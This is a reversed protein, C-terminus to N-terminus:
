NEVEKAVDNLFDLVEHWCKTNHCVFTKLEGETFQELAVLKCDKLIEALFYSHYFPRFPLNPFYFDFEGRLDILNDVFQVVLACNLNGIVSVSDVFEGSEILREIWNTDDVHGLKYFTDVAAQYTSLEDFTKITKTEM